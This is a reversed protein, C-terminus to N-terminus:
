YEFPTSFYTLLFLAILYVSILSQIGSMVRVWGTAQLVYERKQIRVLWSGVNFERWGIRLASLVSFYFALVMASLKVKRCWKGVVTESFRSPPFGETLLLPSASGESKDIRDKSWVAWIGSHPNQLHSSIVISVLYAVTFAAILYILPTLIKRPSMGYESTVEFLYYNTYREWTPHKFSGDKAIANLESHRIAYTLERAQDHLGDAKFETRLKELAADSDSFNLKSLNKAYAMEGADPFSDLDADFKAGSVNAGGLKSRRMKTHFFQADSLNASFLLAGTLDTFFLAAGTLDAGSLNGGSLNTMILVARSLNARSLDAGSLNAGDLSAGTLNAFELNAGELHAFKLEVNTLNSERLDAGCLNAIEPSDKLAEGQALTRAVLRKHRSLIEVLEGATPKIGGKYKGNCVFPESAEASQSQAGAGSASVFLSTSLVALLIWIRTGSNLASCKAIM